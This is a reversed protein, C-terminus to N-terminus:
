PLFKLLLAILLAYLPAILGVFWKILEAKTETLAAKVETIDHKTAFADKDRSEMSEALAEAQERSFGAGVLLRTVEFANM